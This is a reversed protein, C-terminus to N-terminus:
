RRGQKGVLEPERVQQMSQEYEEIQQRNYLATAVTHVIILERSGIVSLKENISKIEKKRDQISMDKKGM